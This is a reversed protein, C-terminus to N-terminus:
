PGSGIASENGKLSLSELSKNLYREKQKLTGLVEEVM